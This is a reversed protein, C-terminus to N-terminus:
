PPESSSIAARPGTSLVTRTEMGTLLFLCLPQLVGSLVQTRRNVPGRPLPKFRARISSVDGHASKGAMGPIHHPSAAGRLTEARIARLNRTKGSFPESRPTPHTFVFQRSCSTLGMLELEPGVPASAPPTDLHLGIGGM